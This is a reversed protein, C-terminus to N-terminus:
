QRRLVIVDSRMDVDDLHPGNERFLVEVRGHAIETGLAEAYTDDALTPDNFSLALLGGPGLKAVLPALIDPPAAGLSIVGAAVIAAYAGKTFNLQGADSLWTKEYIGTAAAKELMQATIDTGHLHHFGARKLAQGSLGTGCGYDLILADPQLFQTLAAAIRDPTHYGRGTVDADYTEAWGAYVAITEKVPRRTWLEPKLVDKDPM